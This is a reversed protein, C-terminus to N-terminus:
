AARQDSVAALKKARRAELWLLHREIRALLGPIKGDFAYSIASDTRNLKKGLYRNNLFAFDTQKMRVMQLRIALPDAAQKQAEIRNLENM